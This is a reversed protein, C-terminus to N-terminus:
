EKDESPAGLRKLYGYSRRLCQIFLLLAGVPIIFLIYASPIELSTPEFSGRVFSDWTATVGYWVVVACCFAAVISTFVDLITRTKPPLFNLALDVRVHGEGRLLWAAGLFATFLLITESVEVVWILPSHFYYRMIVEAVMSLMVFMLMSAALIAAGDLIQDFMATIKSSRKM